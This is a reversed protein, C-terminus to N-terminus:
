VLTVYKKIFGLLRGHSWSCCFSKTINKPRSAHYWIDKWLFNTLHLFLISVISQWCYLIQLLFFTLFSARPPDKFLNYTKRLHNLKQQLYNLFLSFEEKLFPRLRHDISFWYSTLPYNFSVDGWNTTCRLGLYLCTVSTLLNDKGSLQWNVTVHIDLIM